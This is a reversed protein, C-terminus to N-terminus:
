AQHQWTVEFQQQAMRDLHDIVVKELFLYDERQTDLQVDLHDQSPILAVTADPMLILSRDPLEQVEFKHKWHNVLRKTIRQAEATNIQTSCIM